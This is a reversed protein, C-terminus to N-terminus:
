SFIEHPRSLKNFFFRNSNFFKGHCSFKLHTLFEKDWETVSNLFGQRESLHMQHSKNKHLM